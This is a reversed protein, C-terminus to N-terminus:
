RACHIGWSLLGLAAMPRGEERSRRVTMEEEPGRPILERDVSRSTCSKSRSGAMGSFTYSIVPRYNTPPPVPSSSLPTSQFAVLTEPPTCNMKHPTPHVLMHRIQRPLLTKADRIQWM